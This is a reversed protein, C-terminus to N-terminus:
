RLFKKFEELIESKKTEIKAKLSYDRYIGKWVLATGAILGPNVKIDLILAPDYIKRAFAGIQNITTEDPEFALYIILVKLKSLEEELGSFIQYINDKNFQQYFSQPLSKLWNIDETSVSSEATENGFFTKILNSKLIGLRHKILNLSFTDSLIISLIDNM